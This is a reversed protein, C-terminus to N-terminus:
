LLEFKCNSKQGVQNKVLTMETINFDSLESHFAAAISLFMRIVITYVYTSVSWWVENSFVGEVNFDLSDTIVENYETLYWVVVRASPSLKQAISSNFTVDVINQRSSIVRHIYKSLVLM